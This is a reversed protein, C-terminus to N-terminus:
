YNLQEIEVSVHTTSFFKMNKDPNKLNQVSINKKNSVLKFWFSEAM